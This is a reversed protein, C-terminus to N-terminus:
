VLKQKEENWTFINCNKRDVVDKIETALDGKLIESLNNELLNGIYYPNEDLTCNLYGAWCCSFVNGSCDIGIKNTLMNCEDNANCQECRLACHLHFDIKSDLNESFLNIFRNANYDKPYNQYLMKGVPMLKILAVEQPDTKNINSIMTLIDKDELNPNIIPVNIRLFNIYKRYKNLNRMNKKYYDNTNRLNSHNNNPSDITLVCKNLLAFRENDNLSEIGNGTTSISIKEKGILTIANNIIKKSDDSLLPDGGAFNFESISDKITLISLLAQAKESHTLETKCDSHTACIDCNFSCKKTINWIIKVKNNLPYSDIFSETIRGKIRMLSDVVDGNVRITDVNDALLDIDMWKGRNMLDNQLYNDITVHYFEYEFVKETNEPISRKISYSGADELHTIKIHKDQVNLKGALGKVLSDEQETLSLNKDIDIHPLFDCNWSEKPQLLIKIVKRGNSIKINSIIFLASYDAENDAKEKILDLMNKKKNSSHYKLFYGFTTLSIIAAITIYIIKSTTWKNESITFFAIWTSLFLGLFFFYGTKIKDEHILNSCIQEIDNLSLLLKHTKRVSKM